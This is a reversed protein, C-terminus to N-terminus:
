RRRIQVDPRRQLLPWVLEGERGHPRRDVTVTAGFPLTEALRLGEARLTSAGETSAEDFLARADVAPAEVVPLRPVGAAPDAAARHAAVQTILAAAPWLQAGELGLPWRRGLWPLAAALLPALYRPELRSGFLAALVLLGVPLLLGGVRLALPADVAAAAPAPGGRAWAWLLGVSRRLPPLPLLASLPALVILPWLTWLPAAGLAEVGGQLWAAPASPPAGGSAVWWSGLLGGQPRPRLLPDLWRHFVVLGLGAGVLARPRLLLLVLAPLAVPKVLVSSAAVLGGLLPGGWARLGRVAGGCLARVLAAPALPDPPPGGEAPPASGGAAGVTALVAGLVVVLLAPADGASLAGTYVLLPSMAAIWGGAGGLGVRKGLLGLLACSLGGSLVSLARGSGVLGILLPHLPYLHGGLDVAAEAGTGDPGFPAGGGLAWCALGRLGLALAALAALEVGDARGLRPPPAPLAPASPSRRPARAAPM